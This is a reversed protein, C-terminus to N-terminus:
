VHARGIENRFSPDNQILRSILATSITIGDRAAALDFLKRTVLTDIVRDYLGLQKMKEADLQIGGLLPQIRKVERQLERNFEILSIEDGAVSAVSTDRTARRFIDGIGWIAFSAILMGFLLVALFGKAKSRILELM